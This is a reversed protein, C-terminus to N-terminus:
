PINSKSPVHGDKGPVKIMRLIARIRCKTDAATRATIRCKTDAATRATIRCKTDAATRATIRCKTDAATRAMIRCKTDAATRVPMPLRPLFNGPYGECGFPPLPAPAPEEENRLQENLKEVTALMAAIEEQSLGSFLAQAFQGRQDYALQVAERGSQTISVLSRRRDEVDRERTIYGCSEMKELLEAVTPPRLHAANALASQTMGEEQALLRLLRGRGHGLTARRRNQCYIQRNIHRFLCDLAELLAQADTSTSYEEQMM